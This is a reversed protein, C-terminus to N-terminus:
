QAMFRFSYILDRLTGRAERDGEAGFLKEDLAVMEERSLPTLGPYHNFLNAVFALNLKANGSCITKANVFKYCGIKEANVLMKEARATLDQEKLAEKSCTEPCLKNLLVIYNESDKIDGSFNTVTRHWKAEKLQFNFWRLLLVDAPLKLLDDITEGNELLRYLEPHNQLTIKSLLGIKIVQWILGLILHERGEILDQSGINVVSCGIAKASNIVVNNNETMQFANLKKGINLVREDITEPVADNILKCLLLGDKCEQFIQNTETAIPLRSSIDKDHALVHNIHTVFQEKEDENISHQTSDTAGGLRTIKQQKSSTGKEKM